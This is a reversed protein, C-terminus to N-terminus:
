GIESTHAKRRRQIRCDGGRLGNSRCVGMEESNVDVPFLPLERQVRLRRLLDYFSNTAIRLLWSRFSGGRFRGINRFAKIFSEQAIDDARDLDGVLAYAHHYVMDQYNLVLWNFADLDGKSAMAILKDETLKVIRNSSNM